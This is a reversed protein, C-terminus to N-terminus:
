CDPTPYEELSVLEGNVSLFAFDSWFRSVVGNAHVQTSSTVLPKGRKKGEPYLSQEIRWSKGQLLEPNGTPQSKKSPTKGRTVKTVFTMGLGSYAGQGPVPQNKALADILRRLSDMPFTTGPPLDLKLKEPKKFAVLGGSGDKKLTASGKVNHKSGGDTKIWGTFEMRKGDLGEYFRDMTHIRISIGTTLKVEYVLEKLITWKQCDRTVRIAMAGESSVPKGEIGLSDLSIVYNAEHAVLEAARTPGSIVAALVGALVGALLACIKM